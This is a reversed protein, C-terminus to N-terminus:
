KQPSLSAPAANPPKETAKKPAEPIAETSSRRRRRRKVLTGRKQSDEELDGLICQMYSTALECARSGDHRYDDERPREFVSSLSCVNSVFGRLITLPEVRRDRCYDLFERPLPLVLDETDRAVVSGNHGPLVGSKVAFRREGIRWGWSNQPLDDLQPARRLRQDAYVHFVFTVSDTPLRLRGVAGQSVSDVYPSRVRHTADGVTFTLLGRSPDIHTAIADYLFGNGDVASEGSVTAEQLDRCKVAIATKGGPPL